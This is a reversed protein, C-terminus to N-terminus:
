QRPHESKDESPEPQHDKEPDQPQHVPEPNAPKPAETPEPGPATTSM